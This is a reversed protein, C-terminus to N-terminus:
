FLFLGASDATSLHVFTNGKQFRRVEALLYLLRSASLMLQMFKWVPNIALWFSRPQILLTIYCIFLTSHYFMANFHMSPSTHSHACVGTDDRRRMHWSWCWSFRLRDIFLSQKSTCTTGQSWRAGQVLSTQIPYLQNIHPIETQWQKPDRRSKTSDALMLM